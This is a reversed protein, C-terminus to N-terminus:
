KKLQRRVLWVAAPALLALSSPEPVSGSTGGSGQASLTVPTVAIQAIPLLAAVLAAARVHKAAGSSLAAATTDSGATKTPSRYPM